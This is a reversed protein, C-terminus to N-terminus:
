TNIFVIPIYLNLFILHFLYECNQKERQRLNDKKGLKREVQVNIELWVGINQDFTSVRAYGILM